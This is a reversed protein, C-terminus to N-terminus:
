SQTMGKKIAFWDSANHLMRHVNEPKYDTRESLVMPVTPLDDIGKRFTPDITRKELIMSGYMGIQEQLGSHSHYWHTGNQIIAFRYVHTTNPEIPMQTLFPVGDEKNPLYLGHWHLSTSEELQNHVHIEATDGQTFTLTPMPIQGNVAIAPKEKGSFNVITDKVYLDYRVVKQAFLTSTACLMVVIQLLAQKINIKFKM